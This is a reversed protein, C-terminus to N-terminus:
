TGARGSVLQTVRAPLDSLFSESGGYGKRFFLFDDKCFVGMFISRGLSNIPEPFYVFRFSNCNRPLLFPLKLTLGHSSGYHLQTKFM